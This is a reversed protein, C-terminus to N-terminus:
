LVPVIDAALCQCRGDFMVTSTKELPEPTTGIGHRYRDSIRDDPIM